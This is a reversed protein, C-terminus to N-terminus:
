VNITNGCRKCFSGVYMSTSNKFDEPYINKGRLGPPFEIKDTTDYVAKYKHGLLWGLIGRCEIM